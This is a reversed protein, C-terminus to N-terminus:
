FFDFALQGQTLLRQTLNEICKAANSEPFHQLLPKRLRV